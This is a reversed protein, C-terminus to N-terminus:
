WDVRRGAVPLTQGARLNTITGDLALIAGDGRVRTGDSMGMIGWSLTLGILAGDKYAVVKGDRFTVTDLAPLPSADLNLLQGDVLRSRRANPRTYSGDPNIVTGDPLTRPTAQVVGEGDKFVMVKGKDMAIHDRVPMISGDADLLNGDARLVQGEKLPREKGGNVQFTGNTSVKIDGPITIDFELPEWQGGREALVNEGVCKVAQVATDPQAFLLAAGAALFLQGIVVARLNRRNM